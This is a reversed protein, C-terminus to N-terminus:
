LGRGLRVRNVLGREIFDLIESGDLYLHNHIVVEERGSPSVFERGREGAIAYTRRSSLGYLLTPEDIVGGHQYGSLGGAYRLAEQSAIAEEYGPLYKALKAMAEEPVGGPFLGAIASMNQRLSEMAAIQEITLEISKAVEDNYDSTAGTAGRVAETEKLWAESNEDLKFGLAKAESLVEYLENAEGRLAKETEEIARAELEQAKQRQQSNSYLEMAGYAVMSFGLALGGLAGTVLKASAGFTRFLTVLKPLVLIMTGMTLSIGALTTGFSILQSSLEPNADAWKRINKIVSTIGTLYKDVTPLLAEAITFKLGDLSSNLRQINDKFEAAANAAETDFVIGLEHAEQRLKEIGDAGQALMPLLQTGSRGFIDMAIASKEIENDLNAIANSITWFAEEPKMARLEEANLGLQRFAREYTELGESADLIAGSMRRIGLEVSNLETGSIQAIHRLESLSETAFGTRLAMKQVEDGMQAYAKLSMVAAGVIAGGAAVMGIGITKATKGIKDLQKDLGQLTKTAEDRARLEVELKADAM